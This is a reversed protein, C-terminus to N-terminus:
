KAWLILMHFLQKWFSALDFFMWHIAKLTTFKVEVQLEEIVQYM